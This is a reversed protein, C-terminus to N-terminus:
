ARRLGDPRQGPRGRRVPGRGHHFHGLSDGGGTAFFLTHSTRARLILAQNARVTAVLSAVTDMVEEPADVHWEVEVGGAQLSRREPAQMRRRAATIGDIIIKDSTFVGGGGIQGAMASKFGTEFEAREPTGEQIDAIPVPFGVSSKIEAVPPPPPPPLGAQQAARIAEEKAARAEQLATNVDDAAQEEQAASYVTIVPTYVEREPKQPEPPPTYPTYPIYDPEPEPEEEPEAPDDPLVTSCRCLRRTTPYSASCNTSAGTMWWCSNDSSDIGPDVDWDWGDFGGGCLAEADEGAAALAARFSAEDSVGWDGDSCSSCVTDCSAGANGLEWNWHRPCVSGDYSPLAVNCNFDKCAHAYFYKGMEVEAPM